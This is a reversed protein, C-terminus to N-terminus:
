LTIVILLEANSMKIITNELNILVNELESGSLNAILIQIRLAWRRWNAAATSNM